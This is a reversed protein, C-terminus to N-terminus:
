DDSALVEELDPAPRQTPWVPNPVFLTPDIQDFGIKKEYDGIKAHLRMVDGEVLGYDFTDWIATLHQGEGDDTPVLRTKQIGQELAKRSEIGLNRFVVQVVDRAYERPGYIGAKYVTEFFEQWDPVLDHAPMTFHELVDKVAEL